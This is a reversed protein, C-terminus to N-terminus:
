VTPPSAFYRRLIELYVEYLQHIEKVPVREDVQHMTLGTLGLEVVPCHRTMFRADSTGGSTSLAPVKGTADSLVAVLIDTFDGVETVFSEGSISANVEIAVDTEIAFATAVGKIRETLSAGTHNDNFRINFRARAEAPVVNTTPNGVDFTTVALTSPDFYATGDDLKQSVFYHLLKVLAHIPNLARHPYAVHGQKGRAVLEVNISGRRGVKIMDGFTELSTPEGVICHDIRQGNEELWDLIALTGDKAPGEEDGTIMIVISGAIGNRVAEVAAAIFAAVGSKMDASGRGHVKGNVITGGFPPYTWAAEDGPPVVDTHGNFGFVPGKTGYVAVLNTVGGREFITCDFGAARLIGALLTIAGGEDPTVSRCQVLAATLAVPDIRKM